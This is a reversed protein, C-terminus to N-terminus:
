MAPEIGIRQHALGLLRGLQVVEASVAPLLPELDQHVRDVVLSIQALQAPHDHPAQEIGGELHPQPHHVPGVLM